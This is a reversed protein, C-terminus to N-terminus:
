LRELVPLDGLGLGRQVVQRLDAVCDGRVHELVGERRLVHRLQLLHRLRQEAAAPHEAVLGAVLVLFLFSRPGRGARRRTRSPCTGTPRRARLPAPSPNQPRPGNSESTRRSSRRGSPSAQPTGSRGTRRTRPSCRCRRGCRSGGFRSWSRPAATVVNSSYWSPALVVAM